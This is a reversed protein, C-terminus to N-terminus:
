QSGRNTLKSVSSGKERSKTKIRKTSSVLKTKILKASGVSLKNKLEEPLGKSIWPHNLADIPSIREEPAWKLFCNIFSLFDVDEIREQLPKSFM